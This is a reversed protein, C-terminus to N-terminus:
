ERGGLKDTGIEHVRESVDEWHSGGDRINIHDIDLGVQREQWLVDL